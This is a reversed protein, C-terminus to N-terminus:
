GKDFGRRTGAPRGPAAPLDLPPGDLRDLYPRRYEEFRADIADLAAKTVAGTRVATGVLDGGAAGGLLGGLGGLGGLNGGGELLGKLQPDERIRAVTEPDADAADRTERDSWVATWGTGPLDVLFEAEVTVTGAAMDPAVRTVRVGTRGARAAADTATKNREAARRNQTRRSFANPESLESILDAYQGGALQSLLAQANVAEGSKPTKLLTSGTGQFSFEEMLAAEVLAVRAAWEADSQSAAVFPRDAPAPPAADAPTEWPVDVPDRPSVGLRDLERRLERAGSVEVNRVGNAWALLALRRRHPATPLVGKVKARPVDLLVWPSARRAGSREAGAPPEAAPPAAAGDAPGAPAVGEEADALVGTVREFEDELLTSLNVEGTRREMWPVLRDRLARALEVPDGAERSAGPAEREPEATPGPAAEFSAELGPHLEELAALEDRRVAFRVAGDPKPPALKPLGPNPGVRDALVGLLEVEDGDPATVTLRDVARRHISPPAAEAVAASCVVAAVAATPFLPPRFM